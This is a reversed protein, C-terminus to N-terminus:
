LVLRQRSVPMTTLTRWFWTRGMTQTVVISVPLKGRAAALLHKGRGNLAIIVPETHGARVVVRTRGVTVLKTKQAVSMTLTVDCVRKAANGHVTCTIPIKAGTGSRRAHGAGAVSRPTVTISVSATASTGNTSSAYYTFSDTGLFGAAPTYTVTGHGGAELGSLRGHAPAVAIAYTLPQGAFETCNPLVVVPLGYPTSTNVNQCTPPPVPTIEVSPATTLSALQMSGMISPVLSSGGGGAGVAGGGQCTAVSVCPVGAGGGGGYLGGGGGAGTQGWPQYTSTASGGNGGNGLSGAMGCGMVSLGLPDCGGAGGATQTGAGGADSAPGAVGGSEGADGGAAAAFGSGGGGGAVILRSNLSAVGVGMPMTRVDSAGGGGGDQVLLTGAEGGGNFGGAPLGGAGGVEVYLTQGPTVSVVGSVVAGRGPALGTPGGGPPCNVECHTMAGGPAGIATISLSHVGAPVTYIQEGGTYSFTTVSAGASAPWLFAAVSLAGLLVVGRREARFVGSVARRTGFPSM